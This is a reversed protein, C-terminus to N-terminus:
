GRDPIRKMRAHLEALADRQSRNLRALPRCAQVYKVADDPDSVLGKKLLLGAAVLCTRGHGEACHIYLSSTGTGLRDCLQALRDISPVFADLIPFSLYSTRARIARPEPFECTLDVVTEIEEPLEKALLRRGILVGPVLEHYPEERRLLRESRWVIWTGLLYPLLVVIAWASMSGDLRKGFIKSGLFLYGFSVTWLSVAPWLAILWAGRHIGAQAALATGMIGFLIGHRM